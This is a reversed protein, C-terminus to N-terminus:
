IHILSLFRVVPTLVVAFLASVYLLMLVDRVLWAVACALALGFTFVIDSRLTRSNAAVGTMREEGHFLYSAPRGHRSESVHFVPRVGAPDIGGVGLM